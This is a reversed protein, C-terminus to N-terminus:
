DDDKMKYHILESEGNAYFMVAFETDGLVTLSDMDYGDFSKLRNNIIEGIPAYGTSNKIPM